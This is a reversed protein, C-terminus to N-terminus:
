KKWNRVWIAIRIVGVVVLLACGILLLELTDMMEELGSHM